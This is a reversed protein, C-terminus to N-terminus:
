VDEYCDDADTTGYRGGNENGSRRSPMSIIADRLTLDTQSLLKHRVEDHGIGTVIRDRMM